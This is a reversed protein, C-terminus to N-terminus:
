AVHLKRRRVVINILPRGAWNNISFELPVRVQGLGSVFNFFQRCPPLHVALFTGDVFVDNEVQVLLNRRHFSRDLQKLILLDVLLVLCTAIFRKQAVTNWEILM